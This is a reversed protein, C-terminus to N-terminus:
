ALYRFAIRYVITIGVTSTSDASATGTITPDAYSKLYAPSFAVSTPGFAIDESSSPKWHMECSTDAHSSPAHLSVVAREARQIASSPNNTDEEIRFWWEGNAATGSNSSFLNVGVKISLVAFDKFAVQWITSWSNLRSTPDLGLASGKVGSVLQQQILPSILEIVVVEQINHFNRAMGSKYTVNKILLSKVMMKEAKVGSVAKSRNKKKNKVM